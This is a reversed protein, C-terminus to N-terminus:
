RGYTFRLDKCGLEEMKRLVAPLVVDPRGAVFLKLELKLGDRRAEGFGKDRADDAAGARQALDSRAQQHQQQDFPKDLSFQTREFLELLEREEDNAELRLKDIAAQRNAEFRAALKKQLEDIQKLDGNKANQMANQMEAQIERVGEADRAPANLAAQSRRLFHRVQDHGTREEDTRADAERWPPILDFENLQLYLNWDEHWSAATAEDPAIATIRWPADIHVFEDHQSLKREWADANDNDGGPVTLALTQGILLATSNTPLQSQYQEFLKEARARSPLTVTYTTPFDIKDARPGTWTRIEATSIPMFERPKLEQFPLKAQSLVFLVLLGVVAAAFSGAHVALLLITVIWSPPKANLTEFLNLSHQAVVKPQTQAPLLPRVEEVIKEATARPITDGTTSTTALGELRLRAALKALRYTVPLSILMLGGWVATFWGLWLLGAAILTAAAIFKFGVDLVPHRCFLTAHVVWGGDLPLIPLLNFGNLGIALMGFLLLERHETILGAVGIAIGAFIGPVPGALSVLVKKWGPVNYHQGSVAAGMFPIFFMRLNRYGFARMAVYHGLEHVFLIGVIAILAKWSQQWMGTFAFIALSLILWFAFNGWSVQNRQLREMETLIAAHPSTAIDLASPEAALPPPTEIQRFIGRALQYDCCEGHLREEVDFVEQENFAERAPSIAARLTQQHALWLDDLSAGKLRQVRVTPPPLLDPQANTTTAFTGDAFETVFTVSFLERTPKIGTWVRQRVQAIVKGSADIWSAFAYKTANRSDVIFMYGMSRFGLARLKEELPQFKDAVAVPLLDRTITFPALSDVPPDDTSSPMRIRLWKVIMILPLLLWSTGWSYERLSVRSSDIEYFQKM